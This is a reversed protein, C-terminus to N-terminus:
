CTRNIIRIAESLDINGNYIAKGLIAGYIGETMLTLIDRITSMGGSAIVKMGSKEQLEVTSEVNVGTLTGDRSIDTYVITSIGQAKVRLALELPTLDTKDIWGKVAVKGDKADIGCVIKEGYLRGADETFRPNEAAATGLIVRTAGLEELYYKIRDLSRIGGGIQVPVSLTKFLAKLTTSNVKEEGFAANLDVIHLYKAGSETWREAIESPDGYVTVERRDGKFLRVAKNDLVDIAPFLIM